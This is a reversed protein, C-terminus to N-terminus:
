HLLLRKVRIGIIVRILIFISVILVDKILSMEENTFDITGVAIFDGNRM